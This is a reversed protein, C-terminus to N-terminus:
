RKGRKKGGCICNVVPGPSGAELWEVYRMLELLDYTSVTAFNRPALFNRADGAASQLRELGEPRNM